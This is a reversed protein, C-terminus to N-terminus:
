ENSWHNESHWIHWGDLATVQPHCCITKGKYVLKPPIFQGVMTAALVATISRKDDSHAIPVVTGVAPHMTWQGTPVFPLATQDWNCILEDPIENM